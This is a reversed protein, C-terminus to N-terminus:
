KHWLMLLLPALHMYPGDIRYNDENIDIIFPLKDVVNVVTGVSLRSKEAIEEKSAYVNFDHITLEYITFFVRLVNKDTFPQLVNYVDNIVSNTINYRRKNSSIFISNGRMLAHGEPESCASYGWNYFANDDNTRQKTTDWPAYASYGKTFSGEALVFALKYALDFCHERGAEEMLTKIKLFVDGFTDAPKYGLLEDISVEFYAAIEPLLQLDPCCSGSEWKSVSQNTVNLKQALEEQTIGKQKRLFAIRDNIKISM